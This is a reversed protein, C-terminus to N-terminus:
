REEQEELRNIAKLYKEKRKQVALQADKRSYVNQLKKDMLMNEYKIRNRFEERKEMQAIVEEMTEIKTKREEQEVFEEIDRNKPIIIKKRKKGM